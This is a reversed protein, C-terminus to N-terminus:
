NESEPAAGEAPADTTTPADGVGEVV